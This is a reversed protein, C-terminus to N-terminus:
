GGLDWLVEVCGSSEFVTLDEGFEFQALGELLFAFGTEDAETVHFAVAVDGVVELVRRGGGGGGGAGDGAGV